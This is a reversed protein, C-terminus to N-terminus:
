FRDRGTRKMPLLRATEPYTLLAHNTLTKAKRTAARWCSCRQLHPARCPRNAPFRDTYDTSAVDAYAYYCLLGDHSLHPVDRDGVVLNNTVKIQYEVELFECLNPCTGAYNAIVMLNRGLQHRRQEAM